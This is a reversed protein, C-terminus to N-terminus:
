SQCFWQPVSGLKNDKVTPDAYQFSYELQPLLYHKGQYEDLFAAVSWFKNLAVVDLCVKCVTINTCDICSWPLHITDLEM